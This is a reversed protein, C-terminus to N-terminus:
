CDGLLPRTWSDDDDGDDFTDCNACRNWLRELSSTDSTPAVEGTGAAEGWSALGNVSTLGTFM